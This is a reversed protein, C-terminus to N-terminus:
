STPGLEMLVMGHHDTTGLTVSITIPSQYGVKYGSITTSNMSAHYEQDVIVTFGADMGMIDNQQGGCAIALNTPSAFASDFSGTMSASGSPPNVSKSQVVAANEVEFIHCRKTGTGTLTVGGSSTPGTGIWVELFQASFTLQDNQVRSWTAGCGAVGSLAAGCVAVLFLTHSSSTPTISTTTAPNAGDGLGNYLVNPTGLTVGGGGGSSPAAGRRGTRSFRGPRRRTSLRSM